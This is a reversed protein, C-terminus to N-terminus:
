RLVFHAHDENVDKVTVKLDNFNQFYDLIASQMDKKVVHGRPFFL